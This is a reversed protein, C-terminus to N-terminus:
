VLQVKWHKKFFMELNTTAPSWNQHLYGLMNHM